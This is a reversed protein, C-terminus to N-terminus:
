LCLIFLAIFLRLFNNSLKKRLFLCSLGKKLIFVSQQDM